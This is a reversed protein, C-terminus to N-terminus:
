IRQAVNQATSLVVEAFNKWSYREKKALGKAITASRLSEDSVLLEMAKAFASSDMPSLILREEPAVEPLGGVNSTVVPCGCAMAELVPLCFGESLSTTVHAIAGRYYQPLIEDPVFGLLRVRETVNCTEITKQISEDLWFDGGIIVLTFDRKTHDLFKAFAEILTSINKGPKLSGVHLFYPNKGQFTPGSSTFREDVGPYAVTIKDAQIKYIDMIEKKVAESITIIHSSRQTIAKTQNKLRKWSNPYLEPQQLFGLDYIFGINKQLGLPVAQSVGLFCDIPHLFLSLPLRLQFWAKKPKLLMPRSLKPFSELVDPSIPDFSYLRYENETDLVKLERLLNVIVRYVGVRLRTDNTAIAGADIGIVM